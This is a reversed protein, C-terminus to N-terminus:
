ATSFDAPLRWEINFPENGQPSTGIEGCPIHIVKESLQAELLLASCALFTHARMCGREDVILPHEIDIMSAVLLAAPLLDRAEAFGIHHEKDGLCWTRAIEYRELQSTKGAVFCAQVADDFATSVKRKSKL